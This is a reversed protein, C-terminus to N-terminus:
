CFWTKLFTLTTSSKLFILISSETHQEGLAIKPASLKLYNFLTALYPIGSALFELGFLLHPFHIQLNSKYRKRELNM